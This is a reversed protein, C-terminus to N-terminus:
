SCKTTLELKISEEYDLEAAWMYVEIMMQSLSLFASDDICLQYIRCAGTHYSGEEQDCSCPYM